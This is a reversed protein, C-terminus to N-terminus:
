NSEIKGTRACKWFHTEVLGLGMTLVAVSATVVLLGQMNELNARPLLSWASKVPCTELYREAIRVVTGDHLYKM